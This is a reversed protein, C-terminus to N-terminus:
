VSEMMDILARRPSCWRNWTEKNKKDRFVSGWSEPKIDLPWQWAPVLCIGRWNNPHYICIYVGFHSLFLIIVDFENVKHLYINHLTFRLVGTNYIKCYEENNVNATSKSDHLCAHLSSAQLSTCYRTQRHSTKSWHQAPLRRKYLNCNWGVTSQEWFRCQPWRM